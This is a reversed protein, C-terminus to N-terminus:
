SAYGTAASLNFELLLTNHVFASSRVPFLLDELIHISIIMNM